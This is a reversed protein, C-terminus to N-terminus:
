FRVNEIVFTKECESCKHEVDINSASHDDDMVERVDEFVDEFANCHPCNCVVEIFCNANVKQYEEMIFRGVVYAIM